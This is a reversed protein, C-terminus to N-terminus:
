SIFLVGLTGYGCHSSIVGGARTVLVEDFYGMDLLYSRVSEIIVEDCGAHTIFVRDKKAMRLDNEMDQVYETVVRHMKGRYKKEPEMTGDIVAIRPHLKLISGLMATLGSCRGGRQLYVLTDVVFSARVRPILEEIESVIEAATMGSKAMDAAELVLLGIGTSLNRSDVVFVHDAYDLEEAALKMVNSTTSMESSITFVVVDDGSDKYRGFVEVAREIGPASTKPTTGHEDSWRYIADPDIDVGDEYEEDGLIIHLPIIEIEYREVLEASLDCTSDSVIKVMESAGKHIKKYSDM